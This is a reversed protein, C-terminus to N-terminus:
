RNSSYGTFQSQRNDRDSDADTEDIRLSLKYLKDKHKFVYTSAKSNKMLLTYGNIMDSLRTQLRDVQYEAIFLNRTINELELDRSEEEKESQKRTDRTLM